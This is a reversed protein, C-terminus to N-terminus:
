GNILPALGERLQGELRPNLSVGGQMRASARERSQVSRRLSDTTIPYTPNEANFTTIREILRAPPKDGARVARSYAGMLSSRQDLIERERKKLLSNARYREALGAPVFGVSQRLADGWGMDEMIPDGNLTTAGEGLYRAARIQDRVFKPAITEIGRLVHGDEIMNFGRWLNEGMGVGAGLMQSVWFQYESSGELQRDPSRFWLDPMGIRNTVDIGLVHGPVGNLLMGALSPGLTEVLHGKMEDELDDADGAFFLAMLAMALSYGWVGRVGAHLFLMGTIGALQARAERRVEPSEGKVAQHTDRFLRWLLNIQFNRFVFLIKTYDSHMLRPRSSASYDFHTKWTLDAAKAIADEGILGKAKAMRYAALFTVERNMRETHHFGWSIVSMVRNRAASYEIGSEGVGALDHAQSKDVTGRRYAEEMAAVEDATLRKSTAAWGKGDGFDRLARGLQKAADGVGGYAGLVATGVISTQSLNVLAAAPTVSLYSAFAASTIAQSWWSGTPSMTWKHRKEMESWVLGARVPDPARQAQRESMTLAEDLDISYRLRALQHAGHFMHHGFARFADREFGPTGKRHIRSKRLSLDPMTELWRQWVADMIRPNVEADDLIGEVAAVFEPNVMDRLATEGITGVTVDHSPNKRQEAAFREQARPGEFRSFSLVKGSDRDRTTVFFQGFRALPFYPAPVKQTEFLARLDVMRSRRGMRAKIQARDLKRKAATIERDRAEGTLGEDNIEALRDDHARQARRDEQEMARTVNRELTDDFADGLAKHEDRVRRYMGQYPAPLANFRKRLEAHKARREQDNALNEAAIRGAEGGTGKALAAKDKDNLGSVFREAPDTGALTADHMLDMLAANDPGRVGLKRWAQAVDDTRAHWENRLADMEEKLRLYDQSAPMHKGLEAFLARGPVLALLNTNGSMAKTLAHSVIKREGAIAAAKPIASALSYSVGPRPRLPAARLAAAAIARLQAPTVAGIQRGFRRLIFAQIEGLIRDVIELIGAPAGAREEIAYAALEEANMQRPGLRDFARGWWGDTPAGAQMQRRLIADLRRMMGDWAPTGIVSEGGAHFAEHLLVPVATEATLNSAVLHIVGDADTMGQIRGSVASEKVSDGGEAINGDSGPSSPHREGDRYAASSRRRENSLQGPEDGAVPPVGGKFVSRPTRIRGSARLANITDSLSANLSDAGTHRYGDGEREARVYLISGAREAGRLMERAGQKDYVTVVVTAAAAQSDKGARKIAAVVVDGDATEADTVLLLDGSREDGANRLVFVPNALLVPLDRVASPPVDPHERLVRKLKGPSMILSQGRGGFARLIEPVPGLEMSSSLDFGGRLLDLVQRGWGSLSNQGGEGPLTEETDHLVIRGADIASEVMVGFPGRRLVARLADTGALADGADGAAISFSEGEGEIDAEPIPAVVEAPAPPEYIARTLDRVEAELKTLADADKFESGQRKAYDTAERESDAKMKESRELRHEFSDLISEASRITGVESTSVAVDVSFQEDIALNVDWQWAGGLKWASLTLPFGGLEGIERNKMERPEALDDKVKALLAAGAEARKDYATGDITAKFADGKTEVRRTIAGKWREIATEAYAANSKANAVRRRLAYQEQSHAAARRRLRELDQRMETLQVVRPDATSLAKAQEYFAAEGLDDMDRVTTDGNWFSEIFRGKREMMQWMTSDYSGKLGYDHIEIEPNMNGQRLARGNRQEDDAPYWLPDLNHSAILRRQVNTGVGMKPGSGILVRIKGENVDNFLRQKAVHTKFDSIFAIEDRPVGRRMLESRIYAPVQFAGTLGLNAFVLQTAPGHMIPKASYGGSEPRYFPQNKSRKWIEFVNEVLTDLKSPADPEPRYLISDVMRMDINAKRGDNIVSLIIDDGAKPPGKREEIATIRAALGAQFDMFDGSREALHMTRKGGKLKPRTVYQELQRSTVVDVNQRVMASLQPINVFRSFRSVMKYKGAADQEPASVSEGFASAWADFQQLNRAELEGGQIYRSLTFLEAMTNTVPTGSALVLSRGPKMSELYRSKVYLDWAMGSGNPDIGKLNGMKTAFDLKRFLHAEDVFLFDVGMEEFTFVQDKGSGKRGSLRQELKEIQNEIKKRTIRTDQGKDMEGLIERYEAIEAQVMRDQFAESIPVKGFSSHTIIVADLDSMSVNAIFQKRRDTHFQREDAVSIRATPYQEYFEKTFQALMHNPVVYMPKRVLGLRRMEMGAGIMASTKGAGVAHAMYTNGAQVIRAVVRQQHPRWRWSTSVGPTTLYSGDFDRVVLNNYTENYLAALRDARAEDQYIWGEFAERIEKAKALAAETQEKDTVSDYGGDARAVRNVVKIEGKNLVAKLISTADVRSTGWDSTAAASTEDGEVQWFALRPSYTAKFRALGLRATAFEEVTAPPIWPMGLTAAIQAPALDIPQVAELADVNRQFRPDRDAAVKADRLKQRVNGSLYEDSILWDGTSKPNEYVRPGLKELAEGASVKFAAAVADLDFRGRDNMVYLVADEISKIEPTLPRSIVNKFFVETKQAEGTADNYSEIARLRYSEPDDGFPEINPRKDIVVDPMDDPDFAGESWERGAAVAAERAEKRARAVAQTGKGDAILASPDFSGEDFPEGAYRAEERAEARANEAQVSTPRRYSIEAKNIPGHRQTFADYAANLRRRAKQGNAADNALDAAYVARLADRVPVLSRIVEIEQASRGGTVGKGRQEVAVGVGDRQQMLADGKLYFSGEKREASAFDVEARDQPTEPERMVGEPLNSLAIPLEAALNAGPRSRVGYRGAYLKDFFGEEGLVMDPHDVFYRSVAGEKDNGNKDKLTVTRTEMSPSLVGDPLLDLEAPMFKRLVIIDTTVATGANKEFADGPLRVAGVFEARDSLYERAKTDVKNLTGASTVFMLLGGPRVADLSKAFFYDHLLFGQPYGPDSKIPIDAFPPNGIVLDYSDRPLPAKTFDDQRVGWKPYLLRAIKATTPDLELGSYATREALAAPMMGAFNGTGMGPEFVSGGKFGLREAADWMARVVTEATFHAYQTTRRATAYETESLLGRLEEGIKEYGKGFAGAQDPFVSALGGWGVYRALAEQEQATAPRGEAEIARVLKIATINDHAKAKWGRAEDLAGPKIVHNQSVGAPVRDADRSGAERGGTPAPERAPREAAEARQRDPRRVDQEGGRGEGSRAGRAPGQGASGQVDGPGAPADSDPVPGQVGDQTGEEIGKLAARVADADDMGEISQGSDELMDRAGNYWARLYKRLAAPTTGLDDAIAKALNTFSRAGAEIHFVALEAGIALIEPDIGSRLETKLKAKLRERLEAARDATVLINSAGYAAPTAVQTKPSEPESKQTKPSEAPKADSPEDELAEISRFISPDAAKKPIKSDAVAADVAEQATKGSGSGGRTPGRVGAVFGEGSEREQVFNIRYGEPAEAKAKAGGVPRSTVTGKAPDIVIAVGAPKPVPTRLHEALDTNGRKTAFPKRTDGQLLWSKFRGVGVETIAGMRRGGSGDSFGAEYTARAEQETFTGLVVKHEDFKGTEPDIQDVIFVNGSQPQEGVYVDVHDGDAGETRRIYGYHAPLTVSWETGDKAKGRREGGKATEITVDLGHVKVHGMQYNGAEKQADSPEPNAKAAEEAIPDAQVTRARHKRAAELASARVASQQQPSMTAFGAAVNALNEGAPGFVVLNKGRSDYGARFGIPMEANIAEVPDAALKQTAAPAGVAAKVKEEHKRSFIWGKERADWKLSVGPVDVPPADPTGGRIIAAKERIHEVTLNAGSSPTSGEPGPKPPGDVAAASQDAEAAPAAAVELEREPEAEAPAPPQPPTRDTDAPAPAEPASPAAAEVAAATAAEPATPAAAEDVPASVEPEVLPAIQEQDPVVTEVAVDQATAADGPTQQVVDSRDAGAEADGPAPTQAAPRAVFGGGEAMIEYAAPDLRRNRVAQRAQAETKFPTGDRRTIPAAEPQEGPEPPAVAEPQPIEIGSPTAAEVAAELDGLQQRLAAREQEFQKPLGGTQRRQSELFDLRARLADNDQPAPAPAAPASPAPADAAAAESLAGPAPAPPAPQMPASDVAPAAAAPDVVSVIASGAEIEDRGVVVEDGDDLKVRVGDPTEGVLVGTFAQPGTESQVEIQVPAGPMADPTIAAPGEGLAAELPGRPPAPSESEGDIPHRPTVLAPAPLGLPAPAADAETEAEDPTANEPAAAPEARSPIAGSIGGAGGGLVAGVAFNTLAEEGYQEALYPAIEAMDAESLKERLEPNLMLQDIAMQSVETMGEILATETGEKAVRRFISTAAREVPAGRGLKTIIKFPAVQELATKVAAAAYIQNQVAPDDLNENHEAATRASEDLLMPFSALLGLAVAGLPGGVLGGVVAGGISAGLTPAAQAADGPLNAAVRGVMNKGESRRARDAAIRAQTEEPADIADGATTLADGVGEAGLDSAIRGAGRVTSGATDRVGAVAREGLGVRAEPADPNRELYLQQARGVVASTFDDPAGSARLADSFTMGQSISSAIRAATETALRSGAEGGGSIESIALLASHPVRYEASAAAITDLDPAHPLAANAAGSPAGYIDSNVKSNPAVSRPTRRREIEGLANQLPSRSFVNDAM